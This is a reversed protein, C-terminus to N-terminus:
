LSVVVLLCAEASIIIDMGNVNLKLANLSALYWNVNTEVRTNDLYSPPKIMLNERFFSLKSHLSAM